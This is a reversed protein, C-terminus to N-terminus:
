NTLLAVPFARFLEAASLAGQQDNPTRLTWGTFADRYTNSLEPPLEVRTDGWVAAGLPPVSSDPLLSAILRPVAVVAM